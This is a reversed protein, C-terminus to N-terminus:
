NVEIWVIDVNPLAMELKALDKRTYHPADPELPAGRISADVIIRQLSPHERLATLFPDVAGGSELRPIIQRGLLQLSDLSRLEDLLDAGNEPNQVEDLWLHTARTLKENEALTNEFGPIRPGVFTWRAHAGLSDIVDLQRNHEAVQANYWWRVAGIAFTMVLFLALFTRLRYRM